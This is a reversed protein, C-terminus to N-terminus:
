PPACVHEIPHFAFREDDDVLDYLRRHGDGLKDVVRGTILGAAILDVIPETIVDPM